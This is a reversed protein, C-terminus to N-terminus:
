KQQTIKEYESSKAPDLEILINKAKSQEMPPAESFMGIFEDRKADMLVQLVFLGPETRYVKQLLELAALAELRGKPLKEYMVDLGKRHYNYMFERYQAYASNLTNEILWYRSKQSDFAAWGAEGSNQAANLVTQANEFFPTGGKLSYTDFDLGIIYYAYFALISTLNDEYSNLQFILPDHEVYEFKVDNDKHNLVVSNYSSNFVPRRSQVQISGSYVDGSKSDLNIFISCEIREDNTLKV